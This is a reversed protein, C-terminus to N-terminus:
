INGGRIGYTFHGNSVEQSEFYERECSSDGWLVNETIRHSTTRSFNEITTTDIVDCYLSAFRKFWPYADFYGLWIEAYPCVVNSIAPTWGEWALGAIDNWEFYNELTPELGAAFVKERMRDTRDLALNFIAKQAISLAEDEDLTEILAKCFSFYQMAFQRCAKRVEIVAQNTEEEIM